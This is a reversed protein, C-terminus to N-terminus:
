DEWYNVHSKSVEKVLESLEIPTTGHKSVVIGGAVNAIRAAETFEMGSVLGAVLVAVVTDGAGSVDFVQKAQSPITKPPSGPRVLYMGESGLTILVNECSYKSMLSAGITHLWVEYTLDPYDKRFKGSLLEAEKLNPTLATIGSYGLDQKPDVIVMKDHIKVLDTIQELLKNTIVGKDYDEIIVADCTPLLRNIKSVLNDIAQWSAETKDERDVRVIQQQETGIRIKETTMMDRYVIGESNMDYRDLEDRLRWANDDNGVFGVVIPELGLFRLNRAVNAAGGLTYWENKVDVVPIPAEPSIRVVDGHIYKDVMLDGVVLVRSEEKFL